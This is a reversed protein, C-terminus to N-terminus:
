AAKLLKEAEEVQAKLKDIQDSQSKSELRHIDRLEEIREDQGTVYVLHM